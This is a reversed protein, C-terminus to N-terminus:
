SNISPTKIKKTSLFIEKFHMILTDQITGDYADMFYELDYINFNDFYYWFASNQIKFLNSVENPTLWKELELIDNICNMVTAKNLSANKYLQLLKNHNIDYVDVVDFSQFKIVNCVEEETINDLGLDKDNKDLVLDRIFFDLYIKLRQKRLVLVNEYKKKSSLYPFYVTLLYFLYAAIFSFSLGKYIDNFSEANNSTLGLFSWNFNIYIVIFLCFLAVSLLLINWPKNM